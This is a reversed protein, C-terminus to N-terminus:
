QNRWQEIVVTAEKLSYFIEGNLCEDRLKGNRIQRDM